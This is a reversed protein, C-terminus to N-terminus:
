SRVNKSDDKIIGLLDDIADDPDYFGNPAILLSNLLSKFISRADFDRM